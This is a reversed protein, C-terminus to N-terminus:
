SAVREAMVGGAVTGLTGFAAIQGFRRRAQRPDFREKALTWFGSLLVSGLAAVHIYVVIAVLPPARPLLAGEAAHLAMGALYGVPIIRSPGFRRMLAANLVAM